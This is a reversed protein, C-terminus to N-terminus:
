KKNRRPKYTELIRYKIKSVEVIGLEIQEASVNRSITISPLGWTSKGDAKAKEFTSLEVLKIRIKM